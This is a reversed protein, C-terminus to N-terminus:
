IFQIPIYLVVTFETAVLGKQLNRRAQSAQARRTMGLGEGGWVTDLSRVCFSAFKM